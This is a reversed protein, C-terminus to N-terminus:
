GAPVSARVVSGKKEQHESPVRSADDVSDRIAGARGARSKLKKKSNGKETNRFHTLPVPSRIYARKRRIFPHPSPDRSERGLGLFVAGAPHSERRYCSTSAEPVWAPRNGARPAAEHMRPRAVM